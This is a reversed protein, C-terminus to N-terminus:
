APTYTILPPTSISLLQGRQNNSVGGVDIYAVTADRVVLGWNSIHKRMRSLRSFETIWEL